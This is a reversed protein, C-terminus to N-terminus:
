AQTLALQAGVLAFAQDCLTYFDHPGYKSPRPTPGKETDVALLIEINRAMSPEAQLREFGLMAGMLAGVICGNTDTDSGPHTQIVWKLADSYTTFKLSASLASWLGHLCWGKQARIDRDVGAEIQNFVSLVEPTQAQSQLQAVITPGDCGQLAMRLAQIYILNTDLCVPHPNTISADDMVCENNWLLALPACRMLAGNSQSWTSPPSSTMKQFRKTYGGITKVGKLLARTNKGMMWGGSNAWEMYAQILHERSYGGDNIITRLLTLMMESDDTVQGPSLELRGQFRTKFFTVQDLLGTYPTHAGCRFEHPAGLADGLFAGMFMGRIRDLEINM